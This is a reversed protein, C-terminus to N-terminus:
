GIGLKKWPGTSEETGPHERETLQYYLGGIGLATKRKVGDSECDQRGHKSLRNRHATLTGRVLKMDRDRREHSRPVERHSGWHDEESKQAWTDRIQAHRQERKGGEIPAGCGAHERCARTEGGGEGGRGREGRRTGPGCIAVDGRKREELGKEATFRNLKMQRRMGRELAEAGRKKQFPNKRVV